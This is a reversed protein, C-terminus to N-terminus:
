SIILENIKYVKSNFHIFDFSKIYIQIKGSFQLFSHFMFTFVIAITTQTNLITELPM